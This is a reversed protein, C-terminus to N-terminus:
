IKLEWKGTSPNRYEPSPARPKSKTTTKNDEWDFKLLLDDNACVPPPITSSKKLISKPHDMNLNLMVQGNTKRIKPPSGIAPESANNGSGPAGTSDAAIAQIAASGEGHQQQQHGKQQRITTVVVGGTGAGGQQQQPNRQRKLSRLKQKQAEKDIKIDKSEHDDDDVGGAPPRQPLLEPKVASSSSSSTALPASHENHPHIQPQKPGQVTGFQAISAEMQQLNDGFVVKMGLPINDLSSLPIDVDCVTKLRHQLKTSNRIMDGNSWDNMVTKCRAMCDKVQKQAARIYGSNSNIRNVQKNRTDTLAALIKTERRHICTRLKKFEAKIEATAVDYQQEVDPLLKTLKQQATELTDVRSEAAKLQQKVDDTAKRVADALAVCTHGVHPGLHLCYICVPTEDKVCYLDADKSHTPCKAPQIKRLAGLPVVTHAKYRGRSHQDDKCATCLEFGCEKCEWTAETTECVGCLIQKSRHVKLSTVVNRLTINRKLHEIGEYPVGTACRCEPCQITNTTPVPKLPADERDDKDRQARIKQFGYIGAICEMCVNHGCDLIVPDEFLSMCVSCIAEEEWRSDQTLAEQQQQDAM